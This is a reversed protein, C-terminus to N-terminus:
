LGAKLGETLLSYQGFKLPKTVMLIHCLYKVIDKSDMGHVEESLM